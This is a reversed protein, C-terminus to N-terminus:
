PGEAALLLAREAARIVAGDILGRAGLETRRWLLDDVTRAQEHAAGYVLQAFIVPADPSVRDRGGDLRHALAIVREYRSGYAHVLHELIDDPLAGGHRARAGDHLATVGEAPRGPLTLEQMAAGRRREGTLGDVVERALGRATTFKVSIVSVAGALGEADHRLIRHRKLLRVHDGAPAGAVPLLGWQVLRVDDPMVGLPPSADHVEALFRDVCEPPLEARAPDGAYPFHATGILRQGRWPVVFLQRARGRLVRDPDGIGGYVTYAPGSAPQRTVLNLAISWGTEERVSRGSLRAAVAGVRAGGANVIWSTRFEATESTLTDRVRAGAIRGDRAVAGEFEVHNCAIAGAARAAEIVELTLREPSYMIADHFLVGGALRPHELEPIMALCEARSLVRSRPIRRDGDLGRNRDASLAENVALGAGLIWRNPFAGRMTPVVIPLPEVLHPASRLWMGREVISERSRRLDLHQLYRLGGHVIRLCNQTAGSGFDGRDVLATRLGRSVADLAICAGTIGGGVVLVDLEADALEAVPTSRSARM